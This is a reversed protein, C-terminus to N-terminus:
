DLFDRVDYSDINFKGNTYKAKRTILKGNKPSNYSYSLTKTKYDYIFKNPEYYAMGGETHVRNKASDAKDVVIRSEDVNTWSCLCIQTSNNKFAKKKKAMTKTATYVTAYNCSYSMDDRQKLVLFDNATLNHVETFSYMADDNNEKIIIKNGKLVYNWVSAYNYRLYFIKLDGKESAYQYIEFRLSDAVKNFQQFKTIDADTLAKELNITFNKQTTSDKELPSDDIYKYYSILSNILNNEFNQQAIAKHFFLSSIFFLIATKLFLNTYKVPLM